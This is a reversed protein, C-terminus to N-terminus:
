PTATRPTQDQMEVDAQEIGGRVLFSQSRGDGRPRGPLQRRQAPKCMRINQAGLGVDECGVKLAQTGVVLCFSFGHPITSTAKLMTVM